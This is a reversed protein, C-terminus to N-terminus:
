DKIMKRCVGMVYTDMVAWITMFWDASNAYMISMRMDATVVNESQCYIKPLLCVMKAASRVLLIRLPPHEATDAM